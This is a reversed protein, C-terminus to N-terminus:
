INQSGSSGARRFSEYMQLTRRLSLMGFHQVQTPMCIYFANKYAKTKVISSSRLNRPLDLVFCCLVSRTTYKIYLGYQSWNIRWNNGIISNIYKCQRPAKQTARKLSTPCHSPREITSRTVSGAGRKFWYTNQLHRYILLFKIVDFLISVM